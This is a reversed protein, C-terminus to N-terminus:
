QQDGLERSIQRTAQKVEEAIEPVKKEKLRSAPGSVSMSAIVKGTYDRIPAAICNIGVEHENRDVAYGQKRIEKLEQKLKNPDTITNETYPKLETNNFFEELKEPSFYALIAKGVATCYLPARKGIFVTPKLSQATEKQEISIVENKDLVGLHVTENFKNSIKEIYPLATKRLDLNELVISGLEYMKISLRYKDTLPNKEVFGRHVLTSLINHVNSKYLNLEESIETVGWEPKDLRFVELVQLARDISKIIKKGM